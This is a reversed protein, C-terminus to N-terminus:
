FKIAAGATLLDIKDGGFDYREWEGRLDVNSLLAYSAGVGYFANTGSDARDADAPTGVISVDGSYPRITTRWNAAGVKGFLSFDKGLPLTGVAALTWADNQADTVLSGPGGATVTSIAKFNNFNVFGGEVALYKNFQYGAFVKIGLDKNDVTTTATMGQAALLSNFSAADWDQGKVQGAGFGAYWGAFNIPDMPTDGYDTLGPDLVWGLSLGFVNQHMNFEVCDVINQACARQSNNAVYMYTGTVELEDTAKYTFGVSYHKEVTAPALTNFTLQDDPIPTKGYNFGARVQLRSNLGYNVGLKYVTQDQWGFGLGADEGLCLAPDGLVGCPFGSQVGQFGPGTNVGPGRNGVSAVDSYQIRTVDAAIVLNKTPKLAIGVGYTAPVDFDGQEAFLGRYKEFKSMYVKSAYTLGLTLRKDMFEGLWGLKLGAGFSYDFGNNTLHAPDSSILGFADLGYARFRTEGLVLSAGLSHTDNLRYGATIPVLLQMLDVGLKKQSGGPIYFDNPYTTNMGGNGVFAIGAHLNETLPMTMGMEPILFYKADSESAGNFGFFSFGGAGSGVAAYREPNFIGFGLDGRMGTNVINAPNAAISLSDRGYAIGVGGMGESRFGFGPLFYGNTALAGGSVSLAVASALLRIKNM